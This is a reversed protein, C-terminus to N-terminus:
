ERAAHDDHRPVEPVGGRRRARVQDLRDRHRNRLGLRRLHRRRQRGGASPLARHCAAVLVELRDLLVCPQEADQDDHHHRQSAQGLERREEDLRVRDSRRRPHLRVVRQAERSLVDVHALAAVETVRLHDARQAGFRLAVASVRGDGFRHVVPRELPARFAGTGIERADAALIGVRPLAQMEDIRARHDRFRVHRGIAPQCRRLEVAVVDRCPHARQARQAIRIGVLSM